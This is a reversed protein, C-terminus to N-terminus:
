MHVSKCVSPNSFEVLFNNLKTLTFDRRMKMNQVMVTRGVLHTPNTQILILNSEITRGVAIAAPETAKQSLREINQSFRIVM